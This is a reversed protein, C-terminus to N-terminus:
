ATKKLPNLNILKLIAQNEEILKELIFDIDTDFLEAIITLIEILYQWIQESITIKLTEAKTQRFLEGLSEYDTFRKALSLTNYQLMSISIDAIQGDFDQSQSKGLNFYQKCEKFFVEITWRTSYIKYAQEFDLTTNTTLLVNWNGRHTTKCFFLKIEVGKYNVLLDSYWVKLRKSKKIKKKRKQREIIEKATLEKTNCTYRTKGMKAMSLLHCGIKRTLVFRILKESTFWSDVLIYEFRIGKTIACRIMSIMSQIKTEFYEQKRNFGSSDVKRKKSYRAKLQKNSLGYPKKENKGKEGHLSFDLGFFSKGDYYGMFLGKFGLISRNTVHSWIRGILEVCRGTKPLDTDDVILCSHSDTSKEGKDEALHIMKLSFSYVISRWSINENNKLRYFVDKGCNFLQYVPSRSYNYANKIQLMPFLLMLLIIEKASYRIRIDEPLNFSRNTLKLSRLIEFINNVAKESSTFFDGIESLITNNKHQLM